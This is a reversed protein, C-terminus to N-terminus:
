GSRVVQSRSLVTTMLETADETHALCGVFVRGDHVALRPEHIGPIPDSQAIERVNWATDLSSLRLKEATATTIAIAGDLPQADFDYVPDMPLKHCDIVAGGRLRAAHLLGLREDRCNVPGWTTRKFLVIDTGGFHLWQAREVDAILETSHWGAVDPRFLCLTPKSLGAIAVFEPTVSSGAERRTFSPSRTATQGSTIPTFPGAVDGWWLHFFLGTCRTYIVQLGSAGRSLSWNTASPTKGPLRIEPGCIWSSFFDRRSLITHPTLGAVSTEPASTVVQVGADTALLALRQPPPIPHRRFTLTHQHM